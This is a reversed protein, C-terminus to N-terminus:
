GAEGPALTPVAGATGGNIRIWTRPGAIGDARLGAARQFARVRDALAADFRRSAADAPTAPRGELEDLKTRLWAVAPGADGRQLTGTWDPPMQWLVTARGRWRADLDALDVRLPRGGVSLTAADDDVAILAASRPAGGDPPWLELVAPRDLTRLATWNGDHELCRLGVALVRTCPAEGGGLDLPTFWRALVAEYARRRSADPDPRWLPALATAGATSAPDEPSPAEPPVDAGAAPADAAEPPPAASGAAV